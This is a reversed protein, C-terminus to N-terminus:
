FLCSPFYECVVLLFCNVILSVSAFSTKGGWPAKAAGETVPAAAATVAVTKSTTQDVVSEESSSVAVVVVSEVGEEQLLRFTLRILHL